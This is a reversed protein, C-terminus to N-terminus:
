VDRRWLKRRDNYNICYLLKTPIHVLFNHPNHSGWFYKLLLECHSKIISLSYVPFDFSLRVWSGTQPVSVAIELASLDECNGSPAERSPPSQRNTPVDSIRVKRQFYHVLHIERDPQLSPAWTTCKKYRYYFLVAGLLQFLLRCRSCSSREKLREAQNQQNRM